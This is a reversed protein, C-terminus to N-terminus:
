TLFRVRKDIPDQLAPVRGPVPEPRDLTPRVPQEEPKDAEGRWPEFGVEGGGDLDAPPEGALGPAVSIRRLRCFSREGPAEFREPKILDHRERGGRVFA